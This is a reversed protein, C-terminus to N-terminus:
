RKWVAVLRRCENKWDCTKDKCLLRKETLFCADLGQQLQITRVQAARSVQNNTGPGPQEHIEYGAPNGSRM